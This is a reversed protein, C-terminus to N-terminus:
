NEEKLIKKCEKFANELVTRVMDWELNYKKSVYGISYGYICIDQIVNKYLPKLNDLCYELDLYISIAVTDGNKLGMKKLIDYTRFLRELVDIDTYNAYNLLKSNYTEMKVKGM